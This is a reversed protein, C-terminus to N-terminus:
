GHDDARGDVGGASGRRRWTTVVEIGLKAAEAEVDGHLLLPQRQRCVYFSMSTGAASRTNAAWIM